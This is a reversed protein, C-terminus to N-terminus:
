YLDESEDPFVTHCFDTFAQVINEGAEFRSTVTGAAESVESATVPFLTELVLVRGEEWNRLTWGLFIALFLMTLPIAASRRRKRREDFYTIKYGM